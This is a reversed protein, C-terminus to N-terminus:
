EVERDCVRCLKQVHYPRGCDCMLEPTVLVFETRAGIFYKEYGQKDDIMVDIGYAHCIEEKAPWWFEDKTWWTDKHDKWMPAGQDRVWDVVSRIYDYHVEHRYGSKFIQQHADEEPPGTIIWIEAGLSRAAKLLPRFVEPYTDLLGHFDIGIKM